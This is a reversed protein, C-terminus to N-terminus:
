GWLFKKCYTVRDEGERYFDSITEVLEFNNKLYFQRAAMYSQGSSTEILLMRGNMQKIAEEVAQLLRTGIGGGSFDPDVVIWYLDFTGQTLPTPGYCAYGVPQDQNDAAVIFAYDKQNPQSLALIILEMALAQDAADFEVVRTLWQAIRPSDESKLKRLHIDMM